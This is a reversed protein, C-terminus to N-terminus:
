DNYYIWLLMGSDTSLKAVFFIFRNEFRMKINKHTVQVSRDVAAFHSGSSNSNALSMIITPLVNPPNIM